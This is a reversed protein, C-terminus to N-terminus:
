RSSGSSARTQEDLTPMVHKMWEVDPIWKSSSLVVELPDQGAARDKANAM